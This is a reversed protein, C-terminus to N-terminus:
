LSSMQLTMDLDLKAIVKKLSPNLCTQYLKLEVFDAFFCKDV